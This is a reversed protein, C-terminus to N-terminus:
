GARQAVFADFESPGGPDGVSLAELRREAAALRDALDCLATTITTLERLRDTVDAVVEAVPQLARRSRDPRRRGARAAQVVAARETAQLGLGNALALVTRRQPGRAVGREIDSIARDSVGSLESLRELTLDARLRLRRVM